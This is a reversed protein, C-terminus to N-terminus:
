ENKLKFWNSETEMNMIVDVADVDGPCYSIFCNKIKLELSLLKDFDGDVLQFLFQSQTKSRNFQKCVYDLQEVTLEYKYTECRGYELDM